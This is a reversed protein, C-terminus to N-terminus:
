NYKGSFAKCETTDNKIQHSTKPTNDYLEKFRNNFMEHQTITNKIQHLHKRTDYYLQKTKGDEFIGIYYYGMPLKLKVTYGYAVSLKKDMRNVDGTLMYVYYPRIYVSDAYQIYKDVRETYSKLLGDTYEGKDLMELQTNSNEYILSLEESGRYYFTDREISVIEYIIEPHHTDLYNVVRKRKTNNLQSM